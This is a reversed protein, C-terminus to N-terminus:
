RITTVRCESINGIRTPEDSSSSQIPNSFDNRSHVLILKWSVDAQVYPCTLIKRSRIKDKCFLKIIFKGYQLGVRVYTVMDTYQLSLWDACAGGM